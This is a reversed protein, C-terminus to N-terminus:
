GRESNQLSAYTTPSSDPPIWLPSFGNLKSTQVNMGMKVATALVYPKFSSGVQNRAQLADDWQTKNYNKGGYMALIAGTGPQELVAGLHVYSPLCGAAGCPVQTQYPPTPPTGKRMLARNAAVTAYLSNMLRQNITTTVRLGGNFIQNKSFHYTNQLESLVAQMIYGRYGSWNNNVAAAIKPFGAALAQHEAQPSITGMKAMAGLVYKWRYVLSTYAAGDKPNPSYYGPSQIMAAIMAAQSYSIQDLQSPGLGFYVQAAAGAGYAGAGFYVTNLYQQLIWQKSKSAALKQAVFIEKIKRSVTQATGINDYYNRVLQQTITSAGQLSGGSSTLDYYAARLIGTPSIGGEHWFNKDEAAVVAARLKAPIQNYTLLQRDYTGFQGIQTKGDSFYVSSAAQFAAQQPQPIPTKNYIYMVGLAVAMIALGCLAAVLGLAKRWTWHRWWDGKQRPRGRRDGGDGTGARRRAPAPRYGTATRSSGRDGSGNGDYGNGNHGNGGYGNRGYGNGPQGNQGRGPYATGNRRGTVGVAAAAAATGGLRAAYRARAAAYRERSASTGRAGAEGPDGRGNKRDWPARRSGTEDPRGWRWSDTRGHQGRSSRGAQGSRSQSRGGSGDGDRYGSGDGDGSRYGSSGNRYGDGNGAGNRHGDGGSGDGHAAGRGARGPLWDLYDRAGGGPRGGDDPDLRYPSPDQNSM